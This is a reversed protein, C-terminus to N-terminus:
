DSSTCLVLVVVGGVNKASNHGKSIKGIFITDARDKIGNLINEHFKICIYVGTLCHASYFFQLEM